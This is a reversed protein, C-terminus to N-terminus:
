LKATDANRRSRILGEQITSVALNGKSDFLQGYALGRGGDAITSTIKYLMWEDARFPKHFYMSHDLSATILDRDPFKRGFPMLMTSIMNSDSMYAAVCQHTHADSQVLQGAKMWVRMLPPKKEIALSDVWDLVRYEIPFPNSELYKKISKKIGGSLRPDKAYRQWREKRSIVEEPKPLADLNIMATQLKFSGNEPKQFSIGMFFITRGRQVARVIRSAFSNGDRERQIKYLIPITPDGPLLFYSHLSHVAYGEALTRTAANLAQAILQGGYVRPIPPKFVTQGRYIDIDIEELDLIKTLISQAQPGETNGEQTM